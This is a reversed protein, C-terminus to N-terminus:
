EVKAGREERWFEPLRPLTQLAPIFRLAIVAIARVLREQCELSETRVFAADVSWEAAASPQRFKPLKQKAAIRFPYAADGV